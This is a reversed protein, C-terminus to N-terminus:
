SASPAILIDRITCNEPESIAYSIARAITDPPFAAKFLSSDQVKTGYRALPTCTLRVAPHSWINNYLSEM